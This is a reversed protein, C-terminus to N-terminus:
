NKQVVGSNSNSIREQKEISSEMEDQLKKYHLQKYSSGVAILAIAAGIYFVILQYKTSKNYDEIILNLAKVSFAGWWSNSDFQFSSNLGYDLAYNKILITLTNGYKRYEQNAKVSLTHTYQLYNLFFIRYSVAMDFLQYMHILTKMTENYITTNKVSGTFGSLLQIYNKVISLGYLGQDTMNQIPNPNDASKTVMVKNYIDSLIAPNNQFDRWRIYGVNLWNVSDAYDSIYWATKIANETSLLIETFNKILTKGYIASIWDALISQDSDTINWSYRSMMYDNVDIWYYFGSKGEIINPANLGGGQAWIWIGQFNSKNLALRLSNSYEPGLYNPFIGMGEYERQTQYEIIQPFNGMGITPNFANYYWFDSGYLKLSVILNNAQVHDFVNNYFIPSNHMNEPDQDNVHWTRFILTKNYLQLDKCTENILLSAYENDFLAANEGSYDEDTNETGILLGTANPLNQCFENSEDNLIEWLKPNSVDIKLQGNNTIYNKIPTNYVFQDTSIYSSLNCLAATLTLNQYASVVVNNIQRYLNGIQNDQFVKFGMGLSSFNFLNLFQGGFIISNGGFRLVNRISTLFDSYNNKYGSIISSISDDGSIYYDGSNNQYVEFGSSPGYTGGVASYMRYKLPSTNNYLIYNLYGDEEHIKLQEILWYTGFADSRPKDGFIILFHSGFSTNLSAICYSDIDNVSVGASVHIGIKDIVSQFHELVNGQINTTQNLYQTWNNEFWNGILIYDKNPNISNNDTIRELQIGFTHNLQSDLDSSILNYLFQYDSKTPIVIETRSINVGYFESSNIKINENASQALNITPSQDVSQKLKQSDSSIQNKSLNGSIVTIQITLSGILIILISLSLIVSSVRSYKM